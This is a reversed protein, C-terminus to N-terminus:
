FINIELMCNTYGNEEERGGFVQEQIRLSDRLGDKGWLYIIFQGIKM